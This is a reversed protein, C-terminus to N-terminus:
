AREEEATEEVGNEEGKLKARYSKLYKEFPIAPIDTENVSIQEKPIEALFTIRERTVGILIFKEGAQVLQVSTHAGLGAGEIVKVNSAAGRRYRAGAVWRTVYYALFLVFALAIILSFMQFIADWM